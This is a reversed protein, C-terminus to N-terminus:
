RGTVTRPKWFLLQVNTDINGKLGYKWSICICIETNWSALICYAAELMAWLVQQRRIKVEKHLEGKQMHAPSLSKCIWHPLLIPIHSIVELILNHSSRSGCEYKNRRPHSVWSGPGSATRYVSVRPLSRILGGYSLAWFCITNPDVPVCFWYTHTYLYTHIYM